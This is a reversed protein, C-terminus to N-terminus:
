GIAESDVLEVEEQGPSSPRSKVVDQEVEKVEHDVEEPLPTISKTPSPERSDGNFAEDGLYNLVSDSLFIYKNNWLICMM